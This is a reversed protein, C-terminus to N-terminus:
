GPSISCVGRDINDEPQGKRCGTSQLWHYELLTTLIARVIKISTKDRSDTILTGAKVRTM